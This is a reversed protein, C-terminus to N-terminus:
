PQLLLRDKTAPASKLPDKLTTSPQVPAQHAADVGDTRLRVACQAGPKNDGTSVEISNASVANAAEQPFGEPM